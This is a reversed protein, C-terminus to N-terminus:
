RRIGYRINRRKRRKKKKEKKIKKQCEGVELFIEEEPYHLHITWMFQGHYTNFSLTVMNSEKEEKM